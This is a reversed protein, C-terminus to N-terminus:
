SVVGADGRLRLAVFTAVGALLAFVLAIAPRNARRAGLDVSPVLAPGAARARQRLYGKMVAWVLWGFFANRRNLMSM